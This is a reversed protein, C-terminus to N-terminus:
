LPPYKIHMSQNGDQANQHGKKIVASHHVECVDHRLSDGQPVGDGRKEIGQRSTDSFALLLKCIYNIEWGFSNSPQRKGYLMRVAGVSQPLLLFQKLHKVPPPGFFDM